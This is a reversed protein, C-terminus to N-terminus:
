EGHRCRPINRPASGGDLSDLVTAGANLPQHGLPLDPGRPGNTARGAHTPAVGAEHNGPEEILDARTAPNRLGLLRAAEHVLPRGPLGIRYDPRRADRM